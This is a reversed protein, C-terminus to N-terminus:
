GADVKAEKRPELPRRDSGPEAEDAPSSPKVAAMPASVRPAPIDIPLYVRFVTGGKEGAELDIWGDHDRVIGHSVSLGLGTGEGQGKTSYFPEFIKERDEPRIGV